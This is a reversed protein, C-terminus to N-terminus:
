FHRKLAATRVVESLSVGLVNLILQLPIEESVLGCVPLSPGIIVKTRPYHM